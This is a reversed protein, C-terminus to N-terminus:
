VQAEEVRILTGRGPQSDIQLSWGIERARDAMGTLGIHEVDRAVDGPIFGCGHDEIELRSPNSALDLRISANQTGAHKVINNLAEQTIRYLALIANPPIEKEGTVNLDIQLGDRQHLDGVLRRLSIPLGEAGISRPRLQSVLVQIEGMASSALEMLRDLQVLVQQLDKEVLLRASQVTLNMSFVTQTVSDHLERAMRNREQLIAYEQVEAAYDQLKRYAEGLDNLLQQNSIRAREASLTLHAFSGVLLCAISDLILTAFGEVRWDWGYTLPAAMGLIFAVIWMFGVRRGFFLVAQFSLPYLLSPLFDISPMLGMMGLVLAFQLALYAWPYWALRSTIAPQTVLLIGYVGMLFYLLAPVPDDYYNFAFARIAVAIFVLLMVANRM